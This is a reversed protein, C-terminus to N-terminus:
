GEDPEKNDDDDAAPVDAPKANPDNPDDGNPEIPHDKIVGVM